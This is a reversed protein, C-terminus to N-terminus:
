INIALTSYTHDTQFTKGLDSSVTFPGTCIDMRRNQGWYIRLAVHLYLTYLYKTQYRERM